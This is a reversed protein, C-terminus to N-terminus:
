LLVPGGSCGDPNDCPAPPPDAPPHDGCGDPNDCSSCFDVTTILGTGGGPVAFSSTDSKYAEVSTKVVYNVTPAGAISLSFGSYAGASGVWDHVLVTRTGLHLITDEQGIEQKELKCCDNAYLAQGELDNKTVTKSESSCAATFLLVAVVKNM